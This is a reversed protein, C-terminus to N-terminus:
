HSGEESEQKPKENGESKSDEATAPQEDGDWNEENKDPATPEWISNWCSTWSASKKGAWAYRDLIEKKTAAPVWNPRNCFLMVDGILMIAIETPLRELVLHVSKGDKAFKCSGGKPVNVGAMEFYEELTCDLHEVILRLAKQPRETIPITLAELLGEPDARESRPFDHNGPCTSTVAFFLFLGHLINM